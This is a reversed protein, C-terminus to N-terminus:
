LESRSSALSLSQVGDGLPRVAVIEWPSVKPANDRLAFTAERSVLTEFEAREETSSLGGIRLLSEFTRSELQLSLPKTNMVRRQYLRSQRLDSRM